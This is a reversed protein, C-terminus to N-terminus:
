RTRGLDSIVIRKINEVGGIDIGHAVGRAASVNNLSRKIEDHLDNQSRSLMVPYHKSWRLANGQQEDNGNIQKPDVIVHSGGSVAEILTNYGGSCVVVDCSAHMNPLDPNQGWLRLNSTNGPSSPPSKRSIPGFVVDFQVSPFESSLSACHELYEEARYGGGGSCVIWKQGPAIGHRQRTEIANSPKPSVYGVEVIKNKLSPAIEFESRVDVIKQDAAIIIRHFLHSWRASSTSNLMEKEPSDLLGRLVFYSLGNFSELCQLLEGEYGLPLHDVLVADPLFAEFLARLLSTRLGMKKEMSTNWWIPRGLHNAFKPRVSNWSPLYVYECEMPVIWSADRLGTVVLAACPGQLAGAIRSMRRLHGLGLGDHMFLLVRYQSSNNTNIM